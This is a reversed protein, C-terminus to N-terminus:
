CTEGYEYLDEETAATGKSHITGNPFKVDDNIDNNNSGM